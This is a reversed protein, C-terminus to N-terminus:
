KSELVAVRKRLDQLEAIINAIFEASGYEMGQYKPRTQEVGNEDVYTEVADKEGTVSNPSVAQVEHAIFGVGTSGDATWTWTKPQLADIFAGSNTLQAQNNKLRYDSATNYATATTTVSVSGVGTGSRNFKVVLGDSNRNFSGSYSDARSGYITGTGAGEISAGTTTNGDGANPVATQGIRLNGSSDIRMREINNTGFILPVSPITKIYLGNSDSVLEGNSSGNAKLEVFSGTTDNLALTVYGAFNTPSTTGIGLNGSADLTMAQTFTLAAGATGSPAISWNHSGQNIDYKAALATNVYKFAGTGSDFSNQYLSVVSTSFAALAGSPIQLAKYSGGWASPTVGIGLNGSSDLRMRETGVYFLMPQTTGGSTSCGFYNGSNTAQIFAQSANAGTDQVMLTPSSGSIHLKYAPSSTGIGVAGTSTIRMRETNNTWFTLADNEKSRVQMQANDMGVYGGDSSTTGTTSNQLVIYPNAEKYLSLLELPSATGVGVRNNTADIVFTNSDFNLGNPISVASSNITLADGSADGLTTGGNLATTGSVTLNTFSGDSGTGLLQVPTTAANGVWVKKDTVNIAVEGQALSSPVNTTTVSNKLKITTPM